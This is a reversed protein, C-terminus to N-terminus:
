LLALATLAVTLLASAACLTLGLRKADPEASAGFPGVPVGDFAITMDRREGSLGRSQNFDATGQRDKSM